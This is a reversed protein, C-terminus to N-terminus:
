TARVVERSSLHAAVGSFANIVVIMVFKKLHSLDRDIISVDRFWWCVLGFLIITTNV